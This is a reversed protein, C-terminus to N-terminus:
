AFFLHWGFGKGAQIGAQANFEDIESGAYNIHNKDGLERISDFAPKM